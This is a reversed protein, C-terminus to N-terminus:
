SETVEHRTRDDRVPVGNRGSLDQAYFGVAYAAARGNIELEEGEVCGVGVIGVNLEAHCGFLDGSLQM